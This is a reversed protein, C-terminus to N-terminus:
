LQLTKEEDYKEELQWTHIIDKVHSSSLFNFLIQSLILNKFVLKFAIVFNYWMFSARRKVTYLTHAWAIWFNDKIPTFNM